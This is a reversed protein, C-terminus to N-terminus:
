NKPCVDVVLPSHGFMNEAFRDASACESDTACCWSDCVTSVDEGIAFRWRPATRVAASETIEGDVAVAVYKHTADRFQVVQHKERALKGM